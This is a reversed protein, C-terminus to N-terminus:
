SRAARTAEAVGGTRPATPSSSSPAPGNGGNAIPPRSAIGLIEEVSKEREGRHDLYREAPTPAISPVAPRAPVPPENRAPNQVEDVAPTMEECLDLRREAQFESPKGVTYHLVLKAAERDGEKALELLKRMVAVLDEVTAASAVAERMMAIRRVHPNGPGGANGKAFRGNADHSSARQETAITM